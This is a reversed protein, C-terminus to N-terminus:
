TADGDAARSMSVCIYDVDLTLAATGDTNSVYIAPTLDAAATVAGSMATGVQVGNLYFTALGASSVEIRVTFYDDAVPAATLVQATADVDTAVGCLHWTDATFATDFVFGVADTATTTLTEGSNCQIPVEASISDTFGIFMYALTIRSVKCRAQLSLGGNSAQWGLSSVLGSLDTLITGNADDDGTTLRLAGGISGALVAQAAGTTDTGEVPTWEDAILDGLFDDFMVVTSPSPLDIQNGHAGARFGKPAVLKGNSDLGALKGHLSTLIQSM